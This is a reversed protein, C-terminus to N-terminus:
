EPSSEIIRLIEDARFLRNRTKGTVERLIGEAQLKAIHRQAIKYDTFNLGGQIYKVTMVPLGILFDVLKNSRAGDRKGKSFDYEKKM